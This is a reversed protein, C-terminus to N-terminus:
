KTSNYWASAMTEAKACLPTAAGTAPTAKVAWCCVVRVLTADCYQHHCATSTNDPWTGALLRCPQMLHPRALRPWSSDDDAIQQGKHVRALEGIIVGTVPM